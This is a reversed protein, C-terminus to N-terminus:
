PGAEPPPHGALVTARTEALVREVYEPMRGAARHSIRSAEREAEALLREREEEAHRRVRAAADAREADAASRAAAVEARAQEEARHRRRQAEEAAATRVRDAEACAEDLRALLPDLEASLEAVRDAPVGPAAAAGPTGALRLRQLRDRSRPM